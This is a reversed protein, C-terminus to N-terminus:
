ENYAKAVEDQDLAHKLILHYLFLQRELIFSACLYNSLVLFLLHHNGKKVADDILLM